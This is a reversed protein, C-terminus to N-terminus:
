ELAESSRERMPDSIGTLEDVDRWEVEFEPTPRGSVFREFAPIPIRYIRESVRVAPLEGAHIRNMVTTSSVNLIAAAEAPTYFRREM